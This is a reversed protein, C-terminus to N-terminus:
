EELLFCDMTIVIDVREYKPALIPSLAQSFFTIPCSCQGYLTIIVKWLNFASLLTSDLLNWSSTIDSQIQLDLSLWSPSHSPLSLPLLNSVVETSLHKYIGQSRSLARAASPHKIKITFDSFPVWEPTGKNGWPIWRTRLVGPESGRGHDETGKSHFMCLEMSIGLTGCKLLCITTLEKKSIAHQILVKDQSM